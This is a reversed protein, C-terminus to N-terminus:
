ENKIFGRQQDRIFELYETIMEVHNTLIIDNKELRNHQLVKYVVDGVEMGESFGIMDKPYTCDLEGDLVEIEKDDIRTIICVSVSLSRYEKM